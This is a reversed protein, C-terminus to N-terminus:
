PVQGEGRNAVILGPTSDHADATDRDFGPRKALKIRAVLLFVPGFIQRRGPNLRSAVAWGGKTLRREAILLGPRVQGGL